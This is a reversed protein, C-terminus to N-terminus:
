KRAIKATPFKKTDLVFVNDSINGVKIKNIKFTVSMMGTGLQMESLYYNSQNIVMVAKKPGDKGIPNTFTIEYVGNKTKMKATKFKSTLDLDIDDERDSKQTTKTIILSDTMTDYTWEQSGNFGAEMQMTKGLIKCSGTMLEKEGKSLVRVHMKIISIKVDMDVDTGQPNEMKEECKKVIGKIEDSIQASLTNSVVLLLFLLLFKQMTKMTRFNKDDFRNPTMM